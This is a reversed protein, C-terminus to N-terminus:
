SIFNTAPRPQRLAEYGCRLLAFVLQRGPLPAPQEDPIATPPRHCGDRGRCGGTSSSPRQKLFPTPVFLSLMSALGSQATAGVVLRSSPRAASRAIVVGDADQSHPISSRACSCCCAHLSCRPM